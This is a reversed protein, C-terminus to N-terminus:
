LAPQGSLQAGQREQRQQRMRRPQSVHQRVQVLVGEVDGASIPRQQELVVRSVRHHLGCRPKSEVLQAGIRPRGLRGLARDDGVRETASLGRENSV